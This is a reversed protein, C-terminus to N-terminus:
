AFIKVNWLPSVIYLCTLLSRGAGRFTFLIEQFTWELGQVLWARGSNGKLKLTSPSVTDAMPESLSTVTSWIVQRNFHSHGRVGFFNRPGCWRLVRSAAFDKLILEGKEGKGNQKKEGREEWFRFDFERKREGQVTDIQKPAQGWSM